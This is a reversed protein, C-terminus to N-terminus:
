RLYLLYNISILSMSIWTINQYHKFTFLFVPLLLLYYWPHQVPFLFVFLIIATYFVLLFNLRKIVWQIYLVCVSTLLTWQCIRISVESPYGLRGLLYIWINGFHWYKQYGFIGSEILPSYFIAHVFPFLTFILILLFVAFYKFDISNFLSQIFNSSLPVRKKLILRPWFLLSYFKVLFSLISGIVSSLHSTQLFRNIYFFYISFFLGVISLVDLHGEHYCEFIILPSLWVFFFRELHRIKNLNIKSSYWIVFCLETLSFFAKFGMISKTFLTVVFFIIQTGIPYITQYVAHELGDIPMTKKIYPNNMNVLHLGDSLYRYLDTTFPQKLFSLIRLSLGVGIIFLIFFNLSYKKTLQLTKIRWFLFLLFFLLHSIVYSPIFLNRVIYQNLIYEYNKIFEFGFLLNPYLGAIYFLIYLFLLLCFLFLNWM